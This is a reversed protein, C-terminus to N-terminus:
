SAADVDLHERAEQHACPRTRVPIQVPLPPIRVNVWHSYELTKGHVQPAWGASASASHEKGEERM